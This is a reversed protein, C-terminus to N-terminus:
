SVPADDHGITRESNKPIDGELFILFMVNVFMHWLHPLKSESDTKSGGRWAELHGILASTYRNKADPVHQWSEPAYKAAGYTLVRALIWTAWWPVLHYMLKGSDSKMGCREKERNARFEEEMKLMFSDSLGMGVEKKEGEMGTSKVNKLIYLVGNSICWVENEPIGPHSLVRIPFKDEVKEKGRVNAWTVFPRTYSEPDLLNM